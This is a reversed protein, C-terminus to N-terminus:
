DIEVLVRPPDMLHASVAKGQCQGGVREHRACGPGLHWGQAIAECEFRHRCAPVGPPFTRGPRCVM